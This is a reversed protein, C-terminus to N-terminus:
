LKDLYEQYAQSDLTDVDELSNQPDVAEIEVIWTNENIEEPNSIVEQNTKLLKAKFPSYIDGVAKVSELVALSSGAEFVKNVDKEEIFVVDGLQDSAYKSIGMQYINEGVKSIWEHTKFYEKPM